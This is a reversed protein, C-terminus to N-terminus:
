IRINNNETFDTIFVGSIDHDSGGDGSVKDQRCQMGVAGCSDDCAKYVHANGGNKETIATHQAAQNALTKDRGEALVAGNRKSGGFSMLGEEGFPFFYQAAGDYVACSCASRTAWFAM